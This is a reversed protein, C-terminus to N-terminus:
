IPKTEAGEANFVGIKADDEEIAADVVEVDRVAEFLAVELM